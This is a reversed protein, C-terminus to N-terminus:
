LKRPKKRGRVTPSSEIQDLRRILVEIPRWWVHKLWRLWSEVMKGLIFTIGFKKCDWNRVQIRHGNIWWLIKIKSEFMWDWVGM